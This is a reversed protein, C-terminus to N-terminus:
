RKYKKNTKRKNKGGNKQPLRKRKRSSSNPTKPSSHTQKPPSTPSVYLNALGKTLEEIDDQNPTSSYKQKVENFASLDMIKQVSPREQHLYELVTKNSNPSKYNLIETKKEIFLLELEKELQEEMSSNTAKDMENSKQRIKKNIDNLQAYYDSFIASHEIQTENFVDPSISANIIEIFMTKLDIHEEFLLTINKNKNSFFEHIIMYGFMWIDSELALLKFYNAEPAFYNYYGYFLFDKYTNKDPFYHTFGFDYLKAGILKKSDIITYNRGTKVINTLGINLAKLDLHAYKNKHMCNLGSLVDYLINKINLIFWDYTDFFTLYAEKTQFIYKLFDSFDVLKELIAYVGLEKRSAAFSYTGFEYVKCIQECGLGNEAESKSLYSQIFLGTLEEGIIRNLEIEDNDIKETRRLVIPTEIDSSKNPFLNFVENYSGKGLRDKLIYENEKCIMNNEYTIPLYGKEILSNILKENTCKHHYNYVKIGNELIITNENSIKRPILPPLKSTDDKLISEPFLPFMRPFANPIKPPSNKKFSAIGGLRNSYKNKTRNKRNPNRPTLLLHNM